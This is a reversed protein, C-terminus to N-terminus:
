FEASSETSDNRGDFLLLPDTGSVGGDVVGFRQITGALDGTFVVRSGHDVMPEAMTKRAM